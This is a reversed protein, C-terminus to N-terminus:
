TNNYHYTLAKMVNIRPRSLGNRTDTVFVGSYWLANLRSALPATPRLQRLAALAGTVQPAAMSTGVLTDAAVVGANCRDVVPRFLAPVASCITTGPALFWMNSGSNSGYRSGDSRVGSFVADYGSSDLTSNGVPITDSICAPFTLGSADGDNGAAVVTAIGSARLNDVVQAIAAYTTSVSDCFGSYRPGGGVSLNVATISLQSRLSYVHQLAALIDNDATRPCPNGEGYLCTASPHFIQIAVIGAESAVGQTGAAIGAVHTGHLCGVAFGCAAAANGGIQTWTKNPCYGFSSTDSYRAFCAQRVIRGSLWPHALDVGSDLIAVNQSRGTYGLSWSDDVDMQYHDWWPNLNENSSVGQPSGADALGHERSEDVALVHESRELAQLVELDANVAVFPIAEYARLQTAGARKLEAVLEVRRSALRDKRMAVLVDIAGKREAADELRRFATRSTARLEVDAHSRSLSAPLARAVDVRAGATPAAIMCALAVLIAGVAAKSTTLTTAKM